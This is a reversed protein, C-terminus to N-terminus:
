FYCCSQHFSAITQPYKSNYKSNLAVRSSAPVFVEHPILLGWAVGTEMKNNPLMSEAPTLKAHFSKGLTSYIKLM